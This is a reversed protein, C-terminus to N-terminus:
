GMRSALARSDLGCALYLVTSYPYAALFSATWRDFQRPRLAVKACDGPLLAAKDFDYDLKDLVSKAYSDGLIPRQTAADFARAALPIFLTEAVGKLTVEVKAQQETLGGSGPSSRLEVESLYVDSAM